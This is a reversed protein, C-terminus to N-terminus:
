NDPFDPALVTHLAASRLVSQVRAALDCFKADWVDARVQFISFAAWKQATTSGEDIAIDVIERFLKFAEFFEPLTESGSNQADSYYSAEFNKWYREVIEEVSNPNPSKPPQLASMAKAKRATPRRYPETIRIRPMASLPLPSDELSFCRPRVVRPDVDFHKFIPDLATANARRYEYLNINVTFRGPGKRRVGVNNPGTEHIYPQLMEEIQHRSLPPDGGGKQTLYLSLTMPEYYFRLDQYTYSWPFDIPPKSAVHELRGRIDPDGPKQIEDLWELKKQAYHRAAIARLAELKQDTNM